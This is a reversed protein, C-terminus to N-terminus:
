SVTGIRYPISATASIVSLAVQAFPGDVVYSSGPSLKINFATTTATYGFALFAVATGDNWITYAKRLPDAALPTTATNAAGGTANASLGTVGGGIAGIISSGAALSPANEILFPGGKIRVALTGSTFQSCRVKFWVPAPMPATFTKIFAVGTSIALTNAAGTTGDEPAARWLSWSTQSGAPDLSAEFVVTGVFAATILDFSVNGMASVDAIVQGTTSTTGTIQSQAATINLPGVTAVNGSSAVMNIPLPAAATGLLAGASDALTIVQQDAVGAGLATLVRIPAGTAGTNVSSDAM